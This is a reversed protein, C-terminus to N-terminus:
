FQFAALEIEPNSSFAGPVYSESSTAFLMWSPLTNRGEHVDVGLWNWLLFKLFLSATADDPTHVNALAVHIVVISGCLINGM